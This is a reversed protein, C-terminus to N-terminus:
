RPLLVGRPDIVERLLRVEEASPLPTEPVSEPVFDHTFGTNAIV